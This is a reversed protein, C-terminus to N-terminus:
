SSIQILIEFFLLLVAENAPQATSEKENTRKRKNNKIKLVLEDESESEDDCRFKINLWGKTKPKGFQLNLAKYLENKLLTLTMKSNNAHEQEFWEIFEAWM